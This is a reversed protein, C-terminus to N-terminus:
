AAMPVKGAGGQKPFVPVSPARRPLPAGFDPLGEPTWTFQKAHVDRDAWGHKKDSKSHYLIWDETQCLSKVFSCHGVGWVQETSQFVPKHHKRWATPNLMDRSPNHLLGLCYAPTWSGSASYVIFVNGNRKLIQPGECIPMAVKEWSHEPESLLTRKGALTVPDKMPAIYLNQQGDKRGPWGSWIFFLEDDLEFVTGDIAWGGTKLTGRCHYPGFPDDGASELVWMRHNANLGDDAAYYIFWKGRLRHLEPAWITQSNRGTPPANWVRIGADQGVGAITSSRRIAISRFNNQSECYYYFGDHFIM